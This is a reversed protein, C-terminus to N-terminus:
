DTDQGDGREDLRKWWTGYQWSSVDGTIDSGTIQGRLAEILDVAQQKWCGARTGTPAARGRRCCMRQRHESIHGAALRLLYPCRRTGLEGSIPLSRFAKGAGLRRAWGTDVGCSWYTLAPACRGTLYNEWAHAQATDQSTIGGCPGAVRGPAHGRTAGLLRLARGPFRMNDPHNDLGGRAASAEAHLGEPSAASQDAVLELHHFDGSGMLVTGHQAAIRSAHGPQFRRFLACAAAM